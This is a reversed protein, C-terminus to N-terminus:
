RRGGGSSTRGGGGGGSMGGGSMSSGSSRYSSSSPTYSSRQYNQTPTTTTRTPTYNNNYNSSRSSQSQQTYNRSTTTSNSNRNTFTPATRNVINNTSNRRTTSSNNYTNNRSTTSYRNYPTARNTYGGGYASGRRSYNYAYPTAVPYGYGYVPYGYGPYGWGYSPYGWGYYPYGYGYGYYPYGWGFGMSWYSDNYVTVTTEQPSSGWSAYGTSPAQISDNEPNYNSGYSNVDTFIEGSSGTTNQLSNFYGKYQVSAATPQSNNVVNKESNTSYIGDSDYYSSNQYSSCSTIILGLFGILICLPTKRTILANTKM